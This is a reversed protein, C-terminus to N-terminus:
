SLGALKSSIGGAVRLASGQEFAAAVRTKGFKQQAETLADLLIRDAGVEPWLYLAMAGPPSNVENVFVEEGDSLFDVRTIGDLQTVEAVAAAYTHMQKLVEAPIEAPFERPASQLGSGQLYKESFSYIKGETQRVPKEVPSFALEPYTRYSMNLDFLDPRYPELVAGARLYVSNRLLARATELDEVIEIGISSGGFRPKVIYPGPFGPESVPSLLARELTPIGNGRLAEGFAYKDMALAGAYTTGSTAPIGALDMLAQLGGGEGLGGHMCSLVVGPEVKVTRLGKKRIWGGDESVTFTLPVAAAPPGDIYDRAESKAPVLHWNGSRDWYIANVTVSGTNLLVRACQLGTLISIDHEPSPGGFVVTALDVM